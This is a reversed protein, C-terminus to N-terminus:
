AVSRQAYRALGLANATVPADLVVGHPFTKLLHRRLAEAGGGVFLVRRFQRANGWRRETFQVVHAAAADIAQDVLGAMDLTGDATYLVPDRQRILADAEYLSIDVNHRDKLEAQIIEAARRMGLNDGGTYRGVVKGGQVAFLDLTNFGIDCIAVPALMDDKSRIWQGANDMGWAFFAGAPQAMIHIDAVELRVEAGNTSFTHTGKMWKRMGRLTSLALPKDGMVEVPLGVTIETRHEGAGFLRAAVVYFMARLETSDTFRDLDMRQIPTAYDTVGDGVLYRVKGFTVEDPKPQRRRKGLGVSLLGDDTSGIGVISPVNVTRPGEGTILVAKNGGFGADFGAPELKM